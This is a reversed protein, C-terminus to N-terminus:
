RPLNYFFHDLVQRFWGVLVVVARIHFLCPITQRAGSKRGPKHQVYYLVGRVTTVLGKFGNEEPIEINFVDELTIRLEIFDLSDAGLDDVLKAEPVVLEDGVCLQKVLIERIKEFIDGEAM